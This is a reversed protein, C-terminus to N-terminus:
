RRYEDGCDGILRHLDRSRGLIAEIQSRDDSDLALDFLSLNGARNDSVGLRVGIIAGAVGPRDLIYRVALNAISAQHKQGIGKLTVLL